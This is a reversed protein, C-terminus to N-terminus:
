DEKFKLFEQIGGELSYVNKTGLYEVLGNALISSIDGTNSILVVNDTNVVYSQYKKFFNSIFKGNDNFATINISGPIIGTKKIEKKTRIDIFKFGKNQKNIIDTVKLFKYGPPKVEIIEINFILNSNPPIKNGAGVKGYALRSPIFITRKGKEHMGLLGIEWGEIVQRTGIQFSFPKKRKYSNDFVTGNELKGIYHVKIKSHNIVKIGNGPIDNLIKINESSVSFTFFLFLIFFYFKM